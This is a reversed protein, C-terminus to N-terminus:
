GYVPHKFSIERDTYLTSLYNREMWICSTRIFKEQEMYLTNLDNKWLWYFTKDFIDEGNTYLISLKNELALLISLYFYIWMWKCHATILKDLNMYLKHLCIHEWWNYKNMYLILGDGGMYMYPTRIQGWWYLTSLDMYWTRIYFQEWGYIPHEFLITEDMYQTSLYFQGMCIGPASIFEEM